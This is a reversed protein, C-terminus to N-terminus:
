KEWADLDEPYIPAGSELCEVGKLRPRDTPVGRTIIDSQRDFVSDNACGAHPAIEDSFRNFTKHQDAMNFLADM